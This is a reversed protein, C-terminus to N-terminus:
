TEFPGEEEEEDEGDDDYDSISWRFYGTCRLLSDSGQSHAVPSALTVM